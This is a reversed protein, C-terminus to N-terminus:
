PKSPRSLRNRAFCHEEVIRGGLVHETLIRECVEPTVGWYWAGEPYVVCIPGDVCVRFCSVRTRYIGARALDPCLEKVRRKLYEWTALGQESACCNPGACLFVHHRAEEMGFHAVIRSLREARPVNDGAGIAARQQSKKDEVM